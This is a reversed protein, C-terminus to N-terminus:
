TLLSNNQTYSVSRGSQDTIKTVFSGAYTFTLTRGLGDSVQSPGLSGPTFTLANGNRDELKVVFGQPSFNYILNRSPDLFRFGGTATRVLQYPLRGPFANQFNSGNVQLTVRRDEL